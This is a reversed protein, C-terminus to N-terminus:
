LGSTALELRAGAVVTASQRRHPPAPCVRNQHLNSEQRGGSSLPDSGHGIAGGQGGIGSRLVRGRMVVLVRGVVQPATSRIQVLRLRPDSAMLVGRSGLQGLSSGSMYTLGGTMQALGLADVRLAFGPALAAM